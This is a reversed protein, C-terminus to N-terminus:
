QRYNSKISGWSRPTASTAGFPGPVTTFNYRIRGSADSYYEGVCISGDSLTIIIDRTEGHAFSTPTGPVHDIPEWTNFDGGKRWLQGTYDLAVLQYASQSSARWAALLESGAGHARAPRAVLYVGFSLVLLCTSAVVARTTTM